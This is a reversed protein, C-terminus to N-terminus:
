PGDLEPCYIESVSWSIHTSTINRNYKQLKDVYLWVYLQLILM